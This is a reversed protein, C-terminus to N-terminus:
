CHEKGLLYLNGQERSRDKTRHLVKPTNAPQLVAQIHKMFSLTSSPGFYAREPPFSGTTSAERVATSAIAGMGDVDAESDETDDLDHELEAANRGHLGGEGFSSRSQRTGYVQAPIRATHESTQPSTPSPRMADLSILSRTDLPNAHGSEPNAQLGIPPSPESVALSRGPPEHTSMDFSTQQHETQMAPLSPTPPALMSELQRVRTQLSM